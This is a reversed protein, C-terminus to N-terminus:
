GITRSSFLAWNKQTATWVETDTDTLYTFGSVCSIYVFLILLWSLLLVFVGGVEMNKFLFVKDSLVVTYIKSRLGRHELFGEFHPVLSAGIANLQQKEGICDELAVVWESREVSRICVCREAM